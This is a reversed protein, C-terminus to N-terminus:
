REERDREGRKERKGMIVLFSSSGEFSADSCVSVIAWRFCLDETNPIVDHTNHLINQYYTTNINTERGVPWVTGRGEREREREEGEEREGKRRGEREGEQLFPTLLLM